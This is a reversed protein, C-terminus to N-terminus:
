LSDVDDNAPPGVWLTLKRDGLRVHKAHRSRREERLSMWGDRLKSVVAQNLLGITFAM